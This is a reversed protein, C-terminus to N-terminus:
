KIHCTRCLLSGKNNADGGSIRVLIGSSPASGDMKHVDHCSSCEMKHNFLLAEDITKGSLSTGSWTAPVPATTYTVKASDKASGIQYTTPDELGGDAAALAANYTFSIPHTTHLDPGIQIDADIFHLTQDLSNTLPGDIGQNLALSGDHCSLCALSPGDPTGPTANMTGTGPASQGPRNDYPTFTSSSTAHAWLPAVQNEDTHHAQHCPSCVNGVGSRTNWLANTSFDHASGIVGRVTAARVTMPLVLLAGAALITSLIKMRKM